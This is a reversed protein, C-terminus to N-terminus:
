LIYIYYQGMLLKLTPSLNETVSYHLVQPQHVVACPMWDTLLLTQSATPTGWCLPVQSPPTRSVLIAPRCFSATPVAAAPPANVAGSSSNRNKSPFFVCQLLLDTSCPYCQSYFYLVTGRALNKYVDNSLCHLLM